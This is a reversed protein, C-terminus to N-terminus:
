ARTNIRIASCVRQVATINGLIAILIIIYTTYVFDPYVLGLILAIFVLILREGRSLIGGKLEQNVLEKEKAAAKAYTTVISGFIALFIWAYAPLYITPLPLFLLGFFIMGEVYRDFITDLYAGVKTSVNRNRAVAGDIFDLFAGIFFFIISLALEQMIMYYMGILAFVGSLYTYGNPTIPFLSFFKGIVVEISKFWHRKTDLM